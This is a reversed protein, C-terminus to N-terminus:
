SPPRRSRPTIPAAPAGPRVTQAKPLQAAMAPTLVSVFRLRAEAKVLGAMHGGKTARALAAREAEAGTAGGNLRRELEEAAVAAERRPGAFRRCSVVRGRM